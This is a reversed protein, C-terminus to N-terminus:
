GGMLENVATDPARVETLRWARVPFVLYETADEKKFILTVQSLNRKGLIGLDLEVPSVIRAEEGIIKPTPDLVVLDPKQERIFKNIDARHIGVDTDNLKLDKSLLDLVGGPKGERSAQIARDLAQRILKPDDPQNALGIAIRVGGLVVLLGVVGILAKAGKDM